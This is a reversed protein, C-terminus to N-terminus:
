VPLNLRIKIYKMPAKNKLASHRRQYNYYRVQQKIKQRVEELNRCDAFLSKNESKFRSHWSEMRTNGHCGNTSYSVQAEDDILVQRVWVHGTLVPDQDSHIIFKRVSLKLRTLNRKTKRWVSLALTTNKRDAIEWGFVVRSTYDLITMLQTKRAGNDYVIETFDTVGVEGIKIARETELKAVLNIEDGVENIIKQVPGPRPKPPRKAVQLAMDKMLLRVTERGISHSYGDDQATLESHVRRYGYAPNDIIATKM